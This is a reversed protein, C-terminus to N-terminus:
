SMVKYIFLLAWEILDASVCSGRFSEMGPFNTVDISECSPPLPGRPHHVFIITLFGSLATSNYCM